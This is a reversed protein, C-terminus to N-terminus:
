AAITRRMNSIHAAPSPSFPMVLASFASRVSARLRLAVPRSRPRRGTYRGDQMAVAIAAHEDPIFGFLPVLPPLFLLPWPWLDVPDGHRSLLQPDDRVRQPRRCVVLQLLAAFVIPEPRGCVAASPGFAIAM